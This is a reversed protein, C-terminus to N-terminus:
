RVKHREHAEIVLDGALKRLPVPINDPMFQGILASSQGLISNVQAAQPGPAMMRMEGTEPDVKLLSLMAGATAAAAAAGAGPGAPPAPTQGQTQAAAPPKSASAAAVKAIASFLQVYTQNRLYRTAGAVEEPCAYGVLFNAAAAIDPEDAVVRDVKQRLCQEARAVIAPKEGQAQAQAAGGAVLAVAGSLALRVLITSAGSM